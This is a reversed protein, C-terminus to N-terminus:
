EDSVSRMQYGKESQYSSDVRIKSPQHDLDRFHKQQVIQDTRGIGADLFRSTGREREVRDVPFTVIVVPTAAERSEM